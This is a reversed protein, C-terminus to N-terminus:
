KKPKTMGDNMAKKAYERMYFKQKKHADLLVVLPADVDYVGDTGAVKGCLEDLIKPDDGRSLLRNRYVGREGAMKVRQIIEGRLGHPDATEEGVEIIRDLSASLCECLYAAIWYDDTNAEFRGHMGASMGALYSLKDRLLGYKDASLFGNIPQTTLYKYAGMCGDSLEDVTIKTRPEDGFQEAVPRFPLTNNRLLEYATNCAEPMFASNKLAADFYPANDNTCAADHTPSDMFLWMERRAEGAGKHREIAIRAGNTDQFARVEFAKLPYEDALEKCSFQDAKTNPKSIKGYLLAMDYNGISGLRDQTNYGRTTANGMEPWFVGRVKGENREDSAWLYAAKEMGNGTVSAGANVSASIGDFERFQAYLSRSKPHTGLTWDKGANSRAVLNVIRPNTPNSPSTIDYHSLMAVGWVILCFAPAYERMSHPDVLRIFDGFIPDELTRKAAETRTKEAKARFYAQIQDIKTTDFDIEPKPKEDPDDDDTNDALSTTSVKYKPEQFPFPDGKSIGDRLSRIIARKSEPTKGGQAAAHILNVVDDFLHMGHCDRLVPGFQFAKKNATDHDLHMTCDARLREMCKELAAARQEPTPTWRPSERESAKQAWLDAFTKRQEDSAEFITAYEFDFGPLVIFEHRKRLANGDAGYNSKLYKCAADISAGDNACVMVGHIGLGGRSNWAAIIYPDQQFHKLYEENTTESDPKLDIDADLLVLGDPFGDANCISRFAIGMPGKEDKLAALNQESKKQNETDGTEIAQTRNQVLKTRRKEKKCLDALWQDVTAPYQRDDKFPIPALIHTIMSLDGHASMIGVGGIVDALTATATEGDNPKCYPMVYCQVRIEKSTIKKAEPANGEM